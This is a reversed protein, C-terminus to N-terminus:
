THNVELEPEAEPDIEEGAVSIRTAVLSCASCKKRKSSSGKRAQFFRDSAAPLKPGNEGETAWRLLNRSTNVGGESHVEQMRKRIVGYLSEGDPIYGRIAIESANKKVPGRAKASCLVGGEQAEKWYRGVASSSVGCLQAAIERIPSNANEQFWQENRRLPWEADGGKGRGM